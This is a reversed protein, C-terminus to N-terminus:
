KSIIKQQLAWVCCHLDWFRWRPRQMQASLSYTDTLQVSKIVLTSWKVGHTIFLLCVILHLYYYKSSLKWQDLVDGWNSLYTIKDQTYFDCMSSYSYCPIIKTVIISHEMGAVNIYAGDFNFALSTFLFYKIKISNVQIM